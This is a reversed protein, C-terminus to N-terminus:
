RWGPRRVDTNPGSSPRWTRPRPRSTSGGRRGGLVCPPTSATSRGCRVGATAPPAPSGASALPGRQPACPRPRRLNRLHRRAIQLLDTRRDGAMERRPSPGQERGRRPHAPGPRRRPLRPARVRRRDHRPHRGAPGRRDRDPHVVCGAGSVLPRRPRRGPPLTRDARRGAPGGVGVAGLGVETPLVGPRLRGGHGAVEEVLPRNRRAAGDRGGAGPRPCAPLM